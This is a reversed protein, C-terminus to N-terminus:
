IAKKGKRGPPKQAPEVDSGNRHALCPLSWFTFFQKPMWEDPLQDEFAPMERWTKSRVLRAVTNAYAQAIAKREAEDRTGRFQM